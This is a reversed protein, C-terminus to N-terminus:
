SLYLRGAAICLQEQGGSFKPMRWCSSLFSIYEFLFFSPSLLTCPLLLHLKTHPWGCQAQSCLNTSFCCQNLTFYVKMWLQHKWCQTNYNGLMFTRTTNEDWCNKDPYFLTLVQLYEYLVSYQLIIPHWCNHSTAASQSIFAFSFLDRFALLTGVLVTRDNTSASHLRILTIM